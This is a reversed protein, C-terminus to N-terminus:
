LRLAVGVGLGVMAGTIGGPARQDARARFGRLVGGVEPEVVAWWRDVLRLRLLAVLSTTAVFADGSRGQTGVDFPRGEAAGWGLELRPGLEVSMADSESALAAGVRGSVLRLDVDGLLDTATGYLAGADAHLRFATGLPMSAGFRGGVLGSGSGLFARGELEASLFWSPRPRPRPPPPPAERPSAVRASAAAVRQQVGDRVAAPVPATPPPVSPMALEAWSARLLEAVALALARPRATPVVDGLHIARRVSKQTAADDITVVMERADAVCPVVELTIAALAPGAPDGVLDVAAVGDTALEIRLLALFATV